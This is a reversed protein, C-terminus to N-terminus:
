TPRGNFCSRKIVDFNDVGNFVIGNPTLTSNEITVGGITLPGKIYFQTDSRKTIQACEAPTLLKVAPAAGGEKGVAAGHAALTATTAAVLVVFERM